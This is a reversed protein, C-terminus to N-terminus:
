HGKRKGIGKNCGGREGQYRMLVGRLTLLNLLYPFSIIPNFKMYAQKSSFAISSIWAFSSTLGREAPPRVHSHHHYL